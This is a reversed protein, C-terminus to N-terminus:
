PCGIRSTAIAVDDYAALARILELIEPIDKRTATRIRLMLVNYHMGLTPACWPAGRCGVRFQKTYVGM